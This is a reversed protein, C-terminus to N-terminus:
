LLDGAEYRALFQEVQQRITVIRRLDQSELAQEFATMGQDLWNREEGLLREYLRSCRALM